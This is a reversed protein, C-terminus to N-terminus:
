HEFSGDAMGGKPLCSMTLAVFSRSALRKHSSTSDVPTSYIPQMHYCIFCFIPSLEQVSSSLRDIGSHIYGTASGVDVWVFNCAVKFCCHFWIVAFYGTGRVVMEILKMMQVVIKILGEPHPKGWCLFIRTIKDQDREVTLCWQLMDLISCCPKSITKM